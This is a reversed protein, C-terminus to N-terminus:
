GSWHKWDAQRLACPLQRRSATCLVGARCPVCRHHALEVFTPSEHEAALTGPASLQVYSGYDALHGQGEQQRQQERRACPDQPGEESGGESGGGSGGKSGSNGEALRQQLRQQRKAARYERQKLVAESQLEQKRRAGLFSPPCLHVHVHTRMRLGM